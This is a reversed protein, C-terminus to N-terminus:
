NNALIGVAFGHIQAWGVVLTPGYRAKFEEFRSGDVVRAIIERADVPSRLDLPMLGLLEEPDHRPPEPDSAVPGPGEKRWHLHAIVDRAMRIAELEDDALYDALGSVSAHM